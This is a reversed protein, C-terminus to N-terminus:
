SFYSPSSLVCASVIVLFLTNTQHLVKNVHYTMQGHNIQAVQYERPLALRDANIRMDCLSYVRRSIRSITTERMILCTIRIDTKTIREGTVM